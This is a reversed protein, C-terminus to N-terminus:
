HNFPQFSVIIKSNLEMSRIFEDAAHRGVAKEIAYSSFNKLITPLARHCHRRVSLM